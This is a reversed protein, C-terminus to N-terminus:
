IVRGLKNATYEVDMGLIGPEATPNSGASLAIRSIKLGLIDADSISSSPITAVLTRVITNATAPISIDATSNNGTHTTSTTTEGVAAMSWDLRWRIKGSNTAYAENISWIAYIDINASTDIDENTSFSIYANDNITYEYRIFNGSLAGTPSTSGTVLDRATIHMIKKIRSSGVLSVLGNTSFQSYNTDDGIKTNGSSDITIKQTLNPYMYSRNDTVTSIAGSLTVITYLPISGNTFGTTNKSVVGENNVEVYNTTNNTLTVYGADVSFTTNAAMIKGEYYYFSLGATNTPDQRFNNSLITDSMSELINNLMDGWTGNSNGVIPLTMGALM